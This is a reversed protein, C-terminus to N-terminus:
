LVNINKTEHEDGLKIDDSNKAIEYMVRASCNLDLPGQRATPILYALALGGRMEGSTPGGDDILRGPIFDIDVWQVYPSKEWDVELMGRRCEPNFSDHMMVFLPKMPVYSLLLEVDRKIGEASHDGDILVFDVPIQETDM